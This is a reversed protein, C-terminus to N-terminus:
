RRRTTRTIRRSQASRSSRMSSCAKLRACSRIPSAPMFATTECRCCIECSPPVYMQMGNYGDGCFGILLACPRKPLRPAKPEGNEPAPADEGEPRTGRRRSRVYEKDKDKGKRGRQKKKGEGRRDGKARM